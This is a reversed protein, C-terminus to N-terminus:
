PIFDYDYESIKVCQSNSYRYCFQLILIKIDM